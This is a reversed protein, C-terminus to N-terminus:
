KFEELKLQEFLKFFEQVYTPVKLKKDTVSASKEYNQEIFYNFQDIYKFYFNKSFSFKVICRSNTTPSTLLNIIKSTYFKYYPNSTNITQIIIEDPTNNNEVYLLIKKLLDSNQLTYLTEIMNNKSDDLYFFNGKRAKLNEKIIKLEEKYMEIDNINEVSKFQDNIEQIIEEKTFEAPVIEKNEIQKILNKIENFLEEKTIHEDILQIQKNFIYDLHNIHKIDTDYREILTNIYKDIEKIQEDNNILSINQILEKKFLIFLSGDSKIGFIQPAPDNIEHNQKIQKGNCNFFKIDDYSSFKPYLHFNAFKAIGKLQILRNYSKYVDSNNLIHIHTDTENVWVPISESIKKEPGIEKEQGTQKTRYVDPLTITLLTEKKPKNNAPKPPYSIQINYEKKKNEDNCKYPDLNFTDCEKRNKQQKTLTFCGTNTIIGCADTFAAKFENYRLFHGLYMGKSKNYIIVVVCDNVGTTTLIPYDRQKPNFEIIDYSNMPVVQHDSNLIDPSFGPITNFPHIEYDNGGLQNKLELYKNKYKLYKEYYSM